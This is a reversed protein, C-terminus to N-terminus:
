AAVELAEGTFYRHAAADDPWVDFWLLELRSCWRDAVAGAVLMGPQEWRGITEGSIVDSKDIGREACWARIAAALPGAPVDDYGLNRDQARSRAAVTEAHERWARTRRLAGSAYELLGHRHLAAISSRAAAPTRM